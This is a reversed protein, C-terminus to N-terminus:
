RVKCLRVVDPAGEEHHGRSGSEMVPLLFDSAENRTQLRQRIPAIDLITGSQALEPALLLDRVIFVGREVDQNGTVLQCTFKQSPTDIWRVKTKYLDGLILLVELADVPM